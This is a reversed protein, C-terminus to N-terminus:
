PQFYKNRRALIDIVKGLNQVCVTSTQSHGDTGVRTGAAIGDCVGVGSAGNVSDIKAPFPQAVRHSQSMPETPFPFPRTPVIPAVLGGERLPERHNATTM